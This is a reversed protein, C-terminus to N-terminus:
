PAIASRFSADAQLQRALTAYGVALPHSADGYQESPLPSPVAHPIQKEKLWASITSKVKKYRELSAATLMHENFPGVLVFVRNGRRQLVEVVEQFARWQLSTDLDLWDFDVKTKGTKYWPLAEHRRAEDVAPLPKTLPGLPNDYPHKLTWSPIDSQEYYAQQLHNTWKSFPVRQEVLVGLRPSIEEKAYSPIHPVFQPVLRPHNFDTFKEDQLDTKLSSMWLPNCHLLVRTNAISAGYHEILGALALPHAGGIGLNACAHRDGIWLREKNASPHNLYHPLTEGPAVYEGWVVSDGLMVAHYNAVAFDAAYREFLWYDQSLEHPIRYSHEMDFREIQKWLPAAGLVLVVAFVSIGLWQWASLRISNSFAVRETVVPLKKQIVEQEGM